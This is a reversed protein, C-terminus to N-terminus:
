GEKVILRLDVDTTKFGNDWRVNVKGKSDVSTVVGRASTSLTNRVRDGVKFNSTTAM